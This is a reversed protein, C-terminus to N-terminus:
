NPEKSRLGRDTYFYKTEVNAWTFSNPRDMYVYKTGKDSLGGMDFYITGKM